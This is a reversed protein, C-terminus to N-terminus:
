GGGGGGGGGNGSGNQGGGGGGGGSSQPPHPLSALHATQLVPCVYAYHGYAAEIRPWQSGTPPDSDGGPLPVAYAPHSLPYLTDLAGPDEGGGSSGGEALGPVVRAFFDTLASPDFQGSPVFVAGEHANFGMMVPVSLHAPRRWLSLPLDPIVADRRGDGG